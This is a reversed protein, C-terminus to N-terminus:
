RCLRWMISDGSRNSCDRWNRWMKEGTGFGRGALRLEEPRFEGAPRVSIIVDAREVVGARDTEVMDSLFRIEARGSLIEEIIERYSQKTKFSVLVESMNKERRDVQRKGSDHLM